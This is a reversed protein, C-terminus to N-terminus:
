GKKGFEALHEVDEKRETELVKQSADVKWEGEDNVVIKKFLGGGADAAEKQTETAAQTPLLSAWQSCEFDDM